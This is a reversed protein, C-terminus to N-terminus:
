NYDLLYGTTYNDGQGTTIKRINDYTKIDNKIPQDFIKKRDIMVNYDEVKETPLYFRSHGIRNDIANFALVFLRNVGQFSSDILYDLYQNPANHITTKSRYKNWNITRKFESKLSQLLKGNDNSSLTVVPVYIKSDTM